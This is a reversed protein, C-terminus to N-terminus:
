SKSKPRKFPLAATLIIQITIGKNIPRCILPAATSQYLSLPKPIALRSLQLVISKVTLIFWKHYQLKYDLM